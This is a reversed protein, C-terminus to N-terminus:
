FSESLDKGSAQKFHLCMWDSEEVQLEEFMNSEKESNM